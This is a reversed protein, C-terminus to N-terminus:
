RLRYAYILGTYNVTKTNYDVIKQPLTRKVEYGCEKLKKVLDVYGHHYELLMEDFCKIAEKSAGIICGYECGECDIKLVANKISYKKVIYDLNVIRIKKGRVSAKLASNGMNTFQPNILITKTKQSVGENLITANQIKNYNINKVALRFSYPYPEYAYVKDAGNLAFYIATDGINAGIDVVVKNKCHLKKYQDLYFNDRIKMITNKLQLDNDFFLKLNKNKYKFRVYKKGIILGNLKKEIPYIALFEGISNFNSSTGNRFQINANKIIKLYLLILNFFSNFNGLSEIIKFINKLVRFYYYFNAYVFVASNVNEMVVM